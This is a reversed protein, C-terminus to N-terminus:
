ERHPNSQITGTFYGLNSKFSLIDFGDNTFHTDQTFTVPIIHGVFFLFGHQYFGNIWYLLLPILSRM